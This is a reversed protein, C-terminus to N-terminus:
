GIATKPPNGGNAFLSHNVMRVRANRPNALVAARSEIPKAPLASEAGAPEVIVVPAAGRACDVCPQPLTGSTPRLGGTAAGAGAGLRPPQPGPPQCPPSAGCGPAVAPPGISPAGDDDPITTEPAGFPAPKEGLADDM